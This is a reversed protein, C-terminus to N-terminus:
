FMAEVRKQMIADREGKSKANKFAKHLALKDKVDQPMPNSSGPKIVKTELKQVSASKNAQLEDFQKAKFLVLASKADMEISDIATDTFGLTRAYDRVQAFTEPKYGPIQKELAERAKAKVEDTAKAIKTEFESRKSKLSDKLSDRIGEARRLQLVLDMKEDSSMQTFDRQNLGKMWQEVAQLQQTEEQTERHFDSEMQALKMASQSQELLRVQDAIKQTKQTYDKTRMLGPELAKPVRYRNGDEWDIEVDDSEQPAEEEAEAVQEPEPTEQEDDNSFKAYIRDEISQVPAQDVANTDTM